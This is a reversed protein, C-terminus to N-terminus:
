DPLTSGPRRARYPRHRRTRSPSRGAVAPRRFRIMELYREPDLQSFTFLGAVLLVYVALAWRPPEGFSGWFVLVGMLLIRHFFVGGREKGTQKLTLEPKWRLEGITQAAYSQVVVAVSIWTGSGALADRAVEGLDRGLSGLVMAGVVLSPASLIGLMFAVAAAWTLWGKPGSAFRKPGERGSVVIAVVGLGWLALLGDLWYFFIPRLADWGLFWVGVVPVANALVIQASRLRSPATVSGAGGASPEDDRASM